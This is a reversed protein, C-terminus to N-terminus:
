FYFFLPYGERKSPKDRIEDYIFTKFYSLQTNNKYYEHYIAYHVTNGAQWTENQIPYFGINSYTQTMQPITRWRM